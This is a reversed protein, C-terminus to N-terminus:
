IKGRAWQKFPKLSGESKWEEQLTSWKQITESSWVKYSMDEIPLKSLMVAIEAAGGFKNFTLYSFRRGDKKREVRLIPQLGLSQFFPILFDKHEEESFAHTCLNYFLNKKHMSGDDYFWLAVGTENLLALNQALSNHKIANIDEGYLDLTYLTKTGWGKNLMTHTNHAGSLIAKTEILNKSTSMFRACTRKKHLHGDGFYASLIVQRRSDNLNYLQQNEMIQMKDHLYVTLKQCEFM